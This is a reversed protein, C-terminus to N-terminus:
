KAQLIEYLAERAKEGGISGLYFVADRRLDYEDSTLAVNRLFEVAKENGIDAITYFITERQDSRGPQTGNFLDILIVVTENKDTGLEGIYDIAYSGLLLSTDHRAIEVFVPMVDHKTFHSLAEMAAERVPEPQARNLAVDKLTTFSKEDERTEGLAYLAEMKLVTEKNLEESVHMPFPTFTSALGLRSYLRSERLLVRELKKMQPAITATVARGNDHVRPVPIARPATAIGMPDLMTLDAVADDYYRSAKYTHLFTRYADAAKKRDIHMLAYASWYAADDVCTSKPYKGLLEAFKKRANAWEENLILGYGDKFLACGPDDPQEMEYASAVIIPVYRGPPTQGSVQAVSLLLPLLGLHIISKM